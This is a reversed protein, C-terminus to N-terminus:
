NSFLSDIKNGRKIPFRMMTLCIVQNPDEPVKDVFNRGNSCCKVPIVQGYVVPTSNYLWSFIASSSGAYRNHRTSAYRFHTSSPYGDDIVFLVYACQGM